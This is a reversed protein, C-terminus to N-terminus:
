SIIVWWYIEILITGNAFTALLVQLSSYGDLDLTEENKTAM